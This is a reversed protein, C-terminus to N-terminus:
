YLRPATANFEIGHDKCFKRAARKTVRRRILKTTVGASCFKADYKYTTEFENDGIATCTYDYGKNM